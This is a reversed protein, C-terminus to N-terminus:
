ENNYGCTNPLKKFHNLIDEGAKVVFDKKAFVTMITRGAANPNLSSVA